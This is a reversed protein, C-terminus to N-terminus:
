SDLKSPRTRPMWIYMYIVFRCQFPFSFHPCSHFSKVLSIMNAKWQQERLEFLGYVNLKGLSDDHSEFELIM